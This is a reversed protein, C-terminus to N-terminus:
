GKTECHHHEELDVHDAHNDIYEHQKISLRKKGFM